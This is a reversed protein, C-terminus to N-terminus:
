VGLSLRHSTSKPSAPAAWPLFELGPAIQGQLHGPALVPTCRLWPLQAAPQLRVYCRRVPWTTCHNPHHSHWPRVQGKAFSQLKLPACAPLAHALQTVGLSVFAWRGLRRAGSPCCGACWTACLMANRHAFIFVERADSMSHATLAGHKEPFYLRSVPCPCATLSRKVLRAGSPCCGAPWIASMSMPTASPLPSPWTLGTGLTGLAWWPLRWLAAPPAWSPWCCTRCCQAAYVAADACLWLWARSSLMDLKLHPKHLGQSVAADVAPVLAAEVLRRPLRPLGAARGAASRLARLLTLVCCLWPEWLAWQQALLTCGCGPACCDAAM